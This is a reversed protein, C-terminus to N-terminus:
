KGPPPDEDAGGESEWQDEGPELESDVGGPDSHEEGVGEDVPESDEPYGPEPQSEYGSEGDEGDVEEEPVPGFEVVYEITFKKSFVEHVVTVYYAQSEAPDGPVGDLSETELGAPSTGTVLSVSTPERGESGPYTQLRDVAAEFTPFEEAVRTYAGYSM